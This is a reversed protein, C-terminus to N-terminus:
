AQRDLVGRWLKRGTKLDLALLYPAGYRAVPVLVRGGAIAPSARVRSGADRKWLLKGTRTDLAFTTGGDAAAVLTRGRVAPTGFVAGDDVSFRWAQRLQKVQRRGPGDAASRSNTVDHGYMPWDARAAAPGLAALALALALARRPLDSVTAARPRRVPGRTM